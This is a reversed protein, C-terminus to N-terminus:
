TSYLSGEAYIDPWVCTFTFKYRHGTMLVFERISGERWWLGAGFPEIITDTGPGSPEILVTITKGDVPFILNYQQGLANPRDWFVDAAEFNIQDDVPVEIVVPNSPPVVINTIQEQLDQIGAYLEEDRDELAEVKNELCYIRDTESM